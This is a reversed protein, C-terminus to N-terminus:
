AISSPGFLVSGRGDSLDTNCNSCRNPSRLRQSSCAQPLCPFGLTSRLSRCHLHGRFRDCDDMRHGGDDNWCRYIRSLQWSDFDGALFDVSDWYGLRWLSSSRMFRRGGCCCSPFALFSSCNARARCTRQNGVQDRVIATPSLRVSRASHGYESVPIVLGEPFEALDAVPFSTVTSARFGVRDLSTTRRSQM